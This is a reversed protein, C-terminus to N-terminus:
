RKTILEPPAVLGCSVLNYGDTWQKGSAHFQAPGAWHPRYTLHLPGHSNRRHGLVQIALENQGKQVFETVDLENPEWAIVGASKGNVLVRVGVGQYKPVRVFLKQGKQLSAQFTKRYAVSGSYFALGQKTWDGLKLSRASSIMTATTGKVKVGFDGLLYVIELGPHDADLRCRLHVENTGVHLLAPDVPLKRLSRDVWWGCEADTDISQGNVYVEYLEPREIALFLEGAPADAVDFTYSLELDTSVTSEAKTRAWPQVMGGGRHKLGAADRVHEDVRLVEDAAKWAGGGVKWKPRDLVLNNCESLQIDWTAPKLPQKRVAKLPKTAPLSKGKGKPIMFVRSGLKALSTRITWRGSAFKADARRMAGTDPDLEVPAGKCEGFGLIRVQPFEDTRDLVFPENTNRNGGRPKAFDYGVNCVFLYFAEDDERLLHLTQRLENGDADQINVRRCTDDVAAALKAGKAPAGTCRAAFEKVEDSREVDIYEPVDGAFIVTGGAAAFKKLLELTTSRITLMPPVIVAKYEALNVMLRGDSKRVKGHRALIDEDGYDFDINAALLTNSMQILMADYEEIKPDKRWHTHFLMWMSEVPHIVLLDRVEKGRTMAAYVRAFYDEVKGYSEWWPSQYFISAPYDRKAEGEMTYWSLHQCRLNIGLATQWDGLAKHGAFSFDWGTCGYTETLRWKRGFQRAVSSVQKATDYLQSVERLLDMGPAQMHEYFRMGASVSVQTSLYDELLTHGTFALNNKECWEGIQRSFADCFLFTLCDHYHYRERHMQEGDVDFFVKTVNPLLDYGYRERFVAPFERTWPLMIEAVTGDIAGDHAHLVWNHHPEDTFIGPVAGGFEKGVERRYAEHTVKIFEGVAEHSLTDLYTQGNYWDSPKDTIIHYILLTEGKALPGSREGHPVNRVNYANHGKITAIAAAPTDDDWTLDKVDKTQILELFHSRYKPNKTVLGGAAGSPWRDEDYVWAEMGLSKAEEICARVCGFWDESLYKTGLGVRSHMFFGGLGMRHMIRVQRRLEEPELLGNWAWFPKGRYESGPHAFESSTLSM